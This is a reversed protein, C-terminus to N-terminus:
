CKGCLIYSNLVQAGYNVVRRGGGLASNFHAYVNYTKKGRSKRVVIMYMYMLVVIVFGGWFVFIFLYFLLLM